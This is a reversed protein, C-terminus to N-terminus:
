APKAGQEKRSSHAYDRPHLAYDETLAGLHRRASM